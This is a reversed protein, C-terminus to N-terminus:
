QQAADNKGGAGLLGGALALIEVPHAKRGGIYLGLQLLLLLYDTFQACLMLQAPLLGDDGRHLGPRLILFEDCVKITGDGVGSVLPWSISVGWCTSGTTAFSAGALRCDPRAPAFSGLLGLREVLRCNCWLPVARDGVVAELRHELVLCDFCICLAQFPQALLSEHKLGFRHGFGIWINIEGRERTGSGM